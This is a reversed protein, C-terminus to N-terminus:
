RKRSPPSDAVEASHIEVFLGTFFVHLYFSYFSFVRKVAM